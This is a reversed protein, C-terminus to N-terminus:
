IFPAEKPPNGMQRANVRRSSRGAMLISVLDITSRDQASILECEDYKAKLTKNLRYGLAPFPATMQSKGDCMKMKSIQFPLIASTIGSLSLM